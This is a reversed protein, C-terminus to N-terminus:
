RGRDGRSPVRPGPKRGRGPRARVKSPGAAVAAEPSQARGADALQRAELTEADVVHQQGGAAAERAQVSDYLDEAQERSVDGEAVPRDQERDAREAAVLLPQAADRDRRAQEREADAAALATERRALADAVAAADPSLTDVDIDYRARLQERMRDVTRAADPDADRWANASEWAVGLEEPSAREWWQDDGALLFATRASAREADLRANLESSEQESAAAAARMQQERARGRREAVLGAATIAVRVASQLAEGVGDHEHSSV